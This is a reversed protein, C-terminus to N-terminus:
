DAGLVAEMAKIVSAVLVRHTDRYCDVGTVGALVWSKGREGTNDDLGLADRYARRSDRPVLSWAIMTEIAPDGVGCTCWDIVATFKGDRALLNFYALDGHFWV